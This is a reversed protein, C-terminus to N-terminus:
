ATTSSNSKEWENPDYLENLPELPEGDRGFWERKVCVGTYHCIDHAAQQISRVVTINRDKAAYHQGVIGYLLPPLPADRWAFVAAGAGAQLAAYSAYGM